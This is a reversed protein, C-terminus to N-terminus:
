YVQLMKQAYLSRLVKNRESNGQFPVRKIKRYSFSFKEKLMKQVAYASVSLGFSSKVLSQVHKVSWISHKQNLM